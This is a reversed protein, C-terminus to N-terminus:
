RSIGIRRKIKQAYRYLAVHCPAWCDRLKVFRHPDKIILTLDSWQESTYYFPDLLGEKEHRLFDAAMRKAYEDHYSRDIRNYNWFCCGGFKRAVMVPLLSVFRSPDNMLYRELYGYEGLVSYIKDKQNISSSENDQRYYVFSEEMLYATKACAWLMFSFATDQYAAGPTEQLRLGNDTIVSRRTLTAWLASPLYFCEVHERPDLVFGCIESNSFHKEEIRECPNSWYYRVDARVIDVDNEEACGMMRQLMSSDCFDDSELVGVYDGTAAAFGVNLSHGYGANPKTIVKFRTDRKEYERLIALSGDTSGDDVCIVEFDQYTQSVLSDLCQRLYREVNYVPVVVSVSLEVGPETEARM